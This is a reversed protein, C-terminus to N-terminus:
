QLCRIEGIDGAEAVPISPGPLDHVLFIRRQADFCCILLIIYNIKNYIDCFAGSDGKSNYLIACFPIKCPSHNM